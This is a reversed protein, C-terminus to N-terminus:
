QAVMVVSNTGFESAAARPAAPDAVFDGDVVFAYLHRGPPLNVAIRWTGSAPDRRLPIIEPDWRNFDGVLSVRRAAPAALVFEVSRSRPSGLSPGAVGFTTADGTRAGTSTGDQRLIGTAVAAGLLMFAAAAALGVLPRVTISRGTLRGLWRSRRPPTMTALEADLAARWSERVPVAEALERRAKELWRPEDDNAM